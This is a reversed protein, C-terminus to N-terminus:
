VERRIYVPPSGIAHTASLVDMGNVLSNSHAVVHLNDFEVVVEDAVEISCLDLCSFM